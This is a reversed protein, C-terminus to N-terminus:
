KPECSTKLFGTDRNLLNVENKRGANVEVESVQNLQTTSNNPMYTERAKM